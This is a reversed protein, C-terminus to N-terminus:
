HRHCILHQSFPGFFGTMEESGCFDDFTGHFIVKKDLYLLTRAHRGITGTDHTILIITTNKRKNLDDLIDFFRERTDPDLATTPEDMILLEPENVLARALLVRQQQGGSLEGIMKRSIDGIGMCELAQLVAKRDRGGLCKPFKKQSLLGLRVIEEVTAPFVPNIGGRLSQPLYGVRHWERFSRIDTGFLRIDGEASDHLGLLARILTSKGSGNPGVIGLYDGRPVAFSVDQLVNGEEHCCSVNRVAVVADHM